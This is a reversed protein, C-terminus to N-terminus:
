VSRGSGISSAGPVKRKAARSSIWIPSFGTQAIMHSLLLHNRYQDLLWPCKFLGAIPLAVLGVILDSLIRDACDHSALSSSEQASSAVVSM